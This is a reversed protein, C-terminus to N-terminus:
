IIFIALVDLYTDVTVCRRQFYAYPHPVDASRQDLTSCRNGTHACFIVDTNYTCVPLYANINCTLFLVNLSPYPLYRQRLVTPLTSAQLPVDHTRYGGEEWHPHAPTHIHNYTSFWLIGTRGCPRSSEAVCSLHSWGRYLTDPTHLIPTNTSM